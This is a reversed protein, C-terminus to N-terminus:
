HAPHSRPYSRRYQPYGPIQNMRALFNVSATTHHFNGLGGDLLYIVPYRKDAKKEYSGPLSINLPRDQGLTKSFFTHTTGMSIVTESPAEEQSFVQSPAILIVLLVLYLYQM